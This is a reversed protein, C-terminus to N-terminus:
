FANVLEAHASCTFIFISNPVHLLKINQVYVDM